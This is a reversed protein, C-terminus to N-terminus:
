HISSARIICAQMPPPAHPCPFLLRLWFWMGLERSNAVLWESIELLSRSAEVLRGARAHDFTGRLAQQFQNYAEGLNMSEPAGAVAPQQQQQQQPSQQELRGTTAVPTFDAMSAPFHQATGVRGIPGPQNYAAPPLQPNLYPSVVAPVGTGAQEAPPFYQPVGFQSSLAEIAATQRTPYQPVVEYPSGASQGPQNLHYVMDPEYPAFQQQVQQQHQRQHQERLAQQQHRAFDTAAYPQLEDPQLSGGQFSTTDTYGYDAYTPMRTRGTAQSLDGPDGRTPQLTPQRFRDTAGAGASPRPVPRRGIGSRSSFSSPDHQKMRRNDGDM